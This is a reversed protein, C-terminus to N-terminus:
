LTELEMDCDVCKLRLGAKGWANLGCEPCTYKIKINNHKHLSFSAEGEPMTVPKTISHYKISNADPDVSDIKIFSNNINMYAGPTFSDLSAESNLIIEDSTIEKITNTLLAARSKYIWELIGTKILAKIKKEFLGDKISYDAMKQGTKSGGPAGTNSPMLGLSEMKFAWEKNHYGARTPEGFHYQWLHCMEHVLTQLFEKDGKYFYEPNLAIEDLKGSGKKGIFRNHAFFGYCGKKDQLTIFADPLASDFLEKNFFQYVEFLKNYQELPKM